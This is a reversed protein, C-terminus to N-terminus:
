NHSAFVTTGGEQDFAIVDFPEAQRGPVEMGPSGIPMGPVALGVIAPREALLKEVDEAPVHGVIVYGDVIATHCAQLSEPIEYRSTVEALDADSEERVTYGSTQM